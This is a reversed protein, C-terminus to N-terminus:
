TNIVPEPAHAAAALEQKCSMAQAYLLRHQGYERGEEHDEKGEEEGGRGAM